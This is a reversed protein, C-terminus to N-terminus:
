KGERVIELAIEDVTLKHLWEDTFTTAGEATKTATILKISEPTIEPVGTVYREVAIHAATIWRVRTRLAAVAGVPQRYIDFQEESHLRSTLTLSDANNKGGNFSCIKENVAEYIPRLITWRESTAIYQNGTRM